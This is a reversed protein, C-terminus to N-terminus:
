KAVEVSWKKSDLVHSFEEHDIDIAVDDSQQVLEKAQDESEAKVRYHRVHVERVGVIFEQTM